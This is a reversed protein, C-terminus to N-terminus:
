PGSFVYEAQSTNLADLEFYLPFPLEDDFQRPTLDVVMNGVVCVCHDGGEAGANTYVDCWDDDGITGWMVRVDSYGHRVLYRALDTSANWCLGQGGSSDEACSRWDGFSEDDEPLDKAWLIFADVSERLTM